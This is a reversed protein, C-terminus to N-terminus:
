TCSLLIDLMNKEFIKLTFLQEYKARGAGGMNKRLMPDNILIALKDALAIADQQPVLFGTVNNDVMDPIGGEFTTVVPLSFQMAELLVLPFCENHYYTPFAFIDASLFAKEKEVGYKKGLFFVHKCLGYKELLIIFDVETIVAEGGIFVCRFSIAKQKLIICAELLVIVGKTTILNSLFLIEIDKKILVSGDKQNSSSIGAVPIGNSCYYCNEQEVFEAIDKYLLPSLLITKANKFQFRYLFKKLLNGSNNAVGKNHYHFVLPVSFSKVMLVIILEKYWAAGRANITFYCLQFRKARLAYFVKYWLKFIVIYKKFGAKGIDALSSATTLNIYTSNFECNIMVSQQLYSSAMAAGHIPPPLHILFLVRPKM